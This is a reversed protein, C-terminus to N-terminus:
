MFYTAWGKWKNRAYNAPAVGICLPYCFILPFSLEKDIAYIVGLFTSITAEMPKHLQRCVSWKQSGCLNQAESQLDEKEFNLQHNCAAEEMRTRPVWERDHHGQGRLIKEKWLTELFFGATSSLNYGMTSVVIHQALNSVRMERFTRSRPLISEWLFGSMFKIPGEERSVRILGDIAHKYSFNFRHLHNQFFSLFLKPFESEENKQQSSWIM